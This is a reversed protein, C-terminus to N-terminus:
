GVIIVAFFVLQYFFTDSIISRNSMQDSSDDTYVVRLPNVMSILSRAAQFSWRLNFPVGVVVLLLEVINLPVDVTVIFSPGTFSTGVLIVNISSLATLIHSSGDFVLM